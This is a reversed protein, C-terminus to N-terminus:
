SLGTAKKAWYWSGSAVAKDVTYGTGTKLTGQGAVTSQDYGVVGAALASNAKGYVWVSGDNGIEVALPNFMRVTTVGLTGTNIGIGTSMAPNVEVNTAM